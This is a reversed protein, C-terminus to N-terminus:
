QPTGAPSTPCTIANRKAASVGLAGLLTKKLSRCVSANWNTWNHGADPLWQYSLSPSTIAQMTSRTSLYAGAESVDFGIIDFDIGQPGTGGGEGSSLYLARSNLKGQLAYTRPNNAVWTPSNISGWLKDANAPGLKLDISGRIIEPVGSFTVGGLTVSAYSSDIPGSFSAAAVYRTPELAFYHMAGFGGMSLGAVASKTDDGHYVSNILERLERTHFTQAKMSFSKGNYNVAPSQWDAYWTPLGDKTDDPTYDSRNRDYNWMAEPMVVLVGADKVFDYVKTACTWAEHSTGHGGLLYLVPYKTTTTPTWGVPTIIRTTLNLNAANSHIVVDRMRSFGQAPCAATPAPKAAPKPAPPPTDSVIYSGDASTQASATGAAWLAVAAALCSWPKLRM